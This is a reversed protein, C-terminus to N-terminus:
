LGPGDSPSGDVEDFGVHDEGETDTAQERRHPLPFYPARSFNEPHRRLEIVYANVLTSIIARIGGILLERLFGLRVSNNPM